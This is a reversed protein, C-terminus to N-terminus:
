MLPTCPFLSLLLYEDYMYMCAVGCCLIIISFSTSSQGRGHWLQMLHRPGPLVCRSGCCLIIISFSTSSQGRGHWLQM